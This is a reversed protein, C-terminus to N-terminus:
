LKCAKLLKSRVDLNLAGYDKSDASDMVTDIDGSELNLFRGATDFPGVGELGAMATLPCQYLNNPGNKRIMGNILFWEFGAEEIKQVFEDITM